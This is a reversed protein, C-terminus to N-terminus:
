WCQKQKRSDTARCSASLNEPLGTCCIVALKVQVDAILLELDALFRLHTADSGEHNYLVTTKKLIPFDLLAMNLNCYHVRTERM